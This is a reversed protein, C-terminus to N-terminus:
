VNTTGWYILTILIGLTLIAYFTMKELSDSQERKLKPIIPMNTVLILGLGLIVVITLVINIHRLLLSAILLTSIITLEAALASSVSENTTPDRKLKGKINTVNRLSYVIRDYYGM